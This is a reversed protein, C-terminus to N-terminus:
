KKFKYCESRLNENKINDCLKVFLKETLEKSEESSFSKRKYCVVELKNDNYCNLYDYYNNNFDGSGYNNKSSYFKVFDYYCKDTKEQSDEQFCIQSESKEIANKTFTSFDATELFCKKISTYMAGTMRANECLSSNKTSLAINYYCKSALHEYKGEEEIRKCFSTDNTKVGFEYYCESPDGFKGCMEWENNEMALKEACNKKIYGPSRRIAKGINKYELQCLTIKHDSFELDFNIFTFVVSILLVLLTVARKKQFKKSVYQYIKLTLLFFALYYFYSLPSMLFGFTIFLTIVGFPGLEEENSVGMISMEIIGLLALVLFILNVLLVEKIIGGSKFPRLNFFKSGLYDVTAYFLYIWGVLSLINILDFM